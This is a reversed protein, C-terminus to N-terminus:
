KNISILFNLIELYASEISDGYSLVGEIHGAMALIGSSSKSEYVIDALNKAMQPTGYSINKPIFNFNGNLLSNWLKESHVHLVCNVESSAVYASCHTLAESSPNIPGESDVFNQELNFSRIYCYGNLGLQRSSGTATGSIICGEDHRISVNGYGIGNKYVGILGLDFLRTRTHDLETLNPNIPHSGLKHNSKYKVVGEDIDFYNNM